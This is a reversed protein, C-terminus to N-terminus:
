TKTEEQKPEPQALRTIAEPTYTMLDEITLNKLGDPLQDKLTELGRVTEIATALDNPLESFDQGYLPKATGQAMTGYVGYRKVIVNVDTDEAGSQDTMTPTQDDTALKAKRTLWQEFNLKM